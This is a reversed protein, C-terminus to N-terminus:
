RFLPAALGSLGMLFLLILTVSRLRERGMATGIRLGFFTAIMLFPITMAAAIGPAIIQDGFFLYLIVGAPLISASYM